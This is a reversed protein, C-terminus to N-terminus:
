TPYAQAIPKGARDPDVDYCIQQADGPSISLSFGVDGAGTIRVTVPTFSGTYLQVYYIKSGPVTSPHNSPDILQVRPDTAIYVTGETHYLEIVATIPGATARLNATFLYKSNSECIGRWIIGNAASIVSCKLVGVEDMGYDYHGHWYILSSLFSHVEKSIFGAQEATVLGHADGGEGIHAIPAYRGDHDASSKHAELANTLNEADSDDAKGPLASEVSVLRSEHSELQTKDGAGMFGNQDTTAAAHANGGSGVHAIAAFREDSEVETYYRGDHDSSAKHAALTDSIMSIDAYDAKGPLTDEIAHLRADQNEIEALHEPTMFGAAAHTAAPHRDLGGHGAHNAFASMIDGGSADAYPRLEGTDRNFIYVPMVTRSLAGDPLPDDATDRTQLTAIWKERDATPEGTLPNVLSADESATVERVFVDAYILHEGPSPFSLVAGPVNVARGDLYVTGDAITVSGGDVDGELGSIITGQALIKGFLMRREYADIDQAENLETNLLDRDARYCVKKYNRGADFTSDSVIQEDGRGAM